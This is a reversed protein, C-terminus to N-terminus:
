FINNALQQIRTYGLIELCVYVEYAKRNESNRNPSLNRILSTVLRSSVSVQWGGSLSPNGVLLDRNYARFISAGM